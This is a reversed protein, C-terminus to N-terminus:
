SRIVLALCFNAVFLVHFFIQLLNPRPNGNRPPLVHLTGAYMRSYEDRTREAADLFYPVYWMFIASLLTIACYLIWHCTV